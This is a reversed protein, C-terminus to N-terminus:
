SAKSRNFQNIKNSFETLLIAFAFGVFAIIFDKMSVNQFIPLYKNIIDTKPFPSIAKAIDDALLSIVVFASFGLSFYISYRLIGVAHTDANNETKCRMKKLYSEESLLDTCLLIIVFQIAFIAWYPLNFYQVVVIILLQISLGIFIGGGMSLKGSNGKKDQKTM